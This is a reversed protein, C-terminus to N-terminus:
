CKSQEKCAPCNEIHESWCCDGYPSGDVECYGNEPVDKKCGTCEMIEDKMICKGSLNDDSLLAMFDARDKLLQAKVEFYDASRNVWYRYGFICLTKEVAKSFTLTKQGDDKLYEENEPGLLYLLKYLMRARKTRVAM